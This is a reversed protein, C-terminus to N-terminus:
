PGRTRVPKNQLPGRDPIPRGALYDLCADYDTM